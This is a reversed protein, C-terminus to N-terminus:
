LVFRQGTMRPRDYQIPPSRLGSQHLSSIRKRAVFVPLMSLDYPKFPFSSIPKSMIRGSPYMAWEVMMSRLPLARSM